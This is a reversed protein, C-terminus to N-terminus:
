TRRESETPGATLTHGKFTLAFHSNRVCDRAYTLTCQSAPRWCKANLLTCSHDSWTIWWTNNLWDHRQSEHVTTTYVKLKAHLRPCLDSVITNCATSMQRKLSCLYQWRVTSTMTWENVNTIDICPSCYCHFLWLSSFLLLSVTKALLVPSTFCDFRPSCCFHIQM